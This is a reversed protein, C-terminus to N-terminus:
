KHIANNLWTMVEQGQTEWARTLAWVPFDGLLEGNWIYTVETNMSDISHLRWEGAAHVLRVYDEHVPVGSDQVSTFKYVVDNEEKLQTYKVIYDRGSFPFPMDLVIHVNGLEDVKTREIRKFVNPYNEKDDLIKQVGAIPTYITSISKCWQFKGYDTWGIWIPYDQLIHWNTDLPPPILEETHSFNLVILCYILFLKM